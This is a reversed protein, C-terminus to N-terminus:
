GKRMLDKYVRFIIVNDELDQHNTRISRQYMFALKVAKIQQDTSGKTSAKLTQYSLTSSPSRKLRCRQVVPYSGAALQSKILLIYIYNPNKKM